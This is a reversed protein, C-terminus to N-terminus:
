FATLTKDWHFKTKAGSKSVARESIRAADEYISEMLADHINDDFEWRLANAQDIIDTTAKPM